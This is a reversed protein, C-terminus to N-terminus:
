EVYIGPRGPKVKGSKGQPDYKKPDNVAFVSVPKQVRLSIQQATYLEKEQPLVYLYVHDISSGKSVMLELITLVDKVTKELQREQLDFHENIKSADVKPWEEQVLLSARGLVHWLEECVHPMVPAIMVLAKELVFRPVQTERALYDVFDMFAIIGRSFDLTEYCQEVTQLTANLKHEMLPSANGGVRGFLSIFKNVFRYAGEIGKDDWEIDKDSGAVFMLFLRATDIGYRKSIEEATVANGNSKSMRLGNKHVVGLTFVRPFPEDFTLWGIDRLFKSFFRAYILHQSIHEPGLIYLDAPMWYGVAKRDFIDHSQPSCYRLYYWSSDFFTAMTDTERRANEGCVPCTTEVFSKSTLLPNGKGSFTVKSPLLVPLDKESVPVTGCSDCYVIPIPTGWYRQRSILWDRLRYEVTTGGVGKKELARTIVTRADESRLGDFSDSNCLVGEGTYAEKLTKVGSDVVQKIALKHKKAFAFDRADHAPVGMVAGTGYGAVVFTGAYIPIEEGSLPHIAYHGTFFGKKEKLLDLKESASVEKLFRAYIAAQKTGKVFQAVLPHQVALALFSVGFLTDPRTTFVELTHNSGKVAFLVKTGESRGIWNRQVEKARDPWHMGSLERLLEEAYPTIRLFWQEIERTEVESDCRWCKGAIVEENALVTNDKPCWNVPAKARYAAGKELMRLFLWQNWKYYDPECTIVERNWDYSLGLEKMLKRITKIADDTYKKPHTGNKIAANEAPLGFADFGMPHMVNFGRMRKYRAVIDTMGYNRVHGMHLYSASPYPFAGLVYYKKKGPVEKAEFVGADTWAKQWKKEIASFNMGEKIRPAM